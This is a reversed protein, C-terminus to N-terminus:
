SRMKIMLFLFPPYIWNATIVAFDTTYKELSNEEYITICLMSFVFDM